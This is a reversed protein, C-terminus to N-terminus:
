HQADLLSDDPESIWKLHPYEQLIDVAGNTSKREVAIHEFNRFAQAAVSEITTRLFKARNLSPTIVSVVPQTVSCLDAYRM